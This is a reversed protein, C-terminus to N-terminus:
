GYKGSIGRGSTQTVIETHDCLATNNLSETCTPSTHHYEAWQDDSYVISAFGTTPSVAIGLDDYLDRNGTCTAGSECVGGLHVTGQSATYRYWESNPTLAHFNQAFGVVWQ